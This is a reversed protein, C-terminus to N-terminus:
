VLDKFFTRLSVGDSYGDNYKDRDYKIHPLYSMIIQYRLVITAENRRLWAIQEPSDYSKIEQTELHPKNCYIVTSRTSWLIFRAWTIWVHFKLSNIRTKGYALDSIFTVRDYITDHKFCNVWQILSFKIFEWKNKPGPGPHIVPKNLHRALYSKGSGDFGEIILAM